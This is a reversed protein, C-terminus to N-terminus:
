DLAARVFPSPMPELVYGAERFLALLGQEGPLHLAGVAIFVCGQALLPLASDAMRRNRAVIGESRFWDRTEAELTDMQKAAEDQLTVLDGELYLEVMHDHVDQVQGHEALAQDLLDIQAPLDMSELFSLQQELTELGVVKLGAGSARLSLNFDLFLGSKPPPLSLTMMAAWPKMRRLQMEPIGYGASAQRVAAYRDEGIQGALTQGQPLQMYDLLRAMTPLNPVIEMAFTDCANLQDVFPEALDLVRPDESHMTGLLYGAHGDVDSIKWYVGQGAMAPTLTLLLLFLGAVGSIM